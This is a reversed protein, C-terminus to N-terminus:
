KLFDVQFADNDESYYDKIIDLKPIRKTSENQGPSGGAGGQYM